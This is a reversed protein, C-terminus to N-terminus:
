SLPSHRSVVAFVRLRLSEVAVIDLVSVLLPLRMPTLVPGLLFLDVGDGEDMGLSRPAGWVM